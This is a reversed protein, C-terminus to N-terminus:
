VVLRLQSRSAMAAEVLEPYHEVVWDALDSPRQGYPQSVVWLELNEPRNDTKIGNMHHVNEFPELPRGLIEEMVIRHEAVQRGRISFMRYGNNNVWGQGSKPHTPLSEVPGVDGSANVRKGHMGCFEGWKRQRGCGAACLACDECYKPRGRGTLIFTAGCRRCSQPVKRAASEATRRCVTSCYVRRGGRPRPPVVNGCAERACVLDDPM